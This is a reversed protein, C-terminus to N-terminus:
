AIIGKLKLSQELREMAEDWLKASLAERIRTPEPRVGRMGYHRMVKIHDILLRRNRYLRDIAKYIDVPECPRIVQGLGAVIRAGDHRAQMANVFWFWAEEANTFATPKDRNMRLPVFKHALM